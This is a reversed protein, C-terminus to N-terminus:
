LSSGCPAMHPEQVLGIAHGAIGSVHAEQTHRVADSILSFFPTLSASPLMWDLRVLLIRESEPKTLMHSEHKVREQLLPESDATFEVRVHLASGAAPSSGKLNPDTSSGLSGVKQAHTAEPMLPSEELRPNHM